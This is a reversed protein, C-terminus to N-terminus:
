VVGFKIPYCLLLWKIMVGRPEPTVLSLSTTDGTAATLHSSTPIDQLSRRESTQQKPQSLESLQPSACSPEQQRQTTEGHPGALTGAKSCTSRECPQKPPRLHSDQSLAGPPLHMARKIMEGQFDGLM